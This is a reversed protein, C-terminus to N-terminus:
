NKGVAIKTLVNSFYINLAFNAHSASLQYKGPIIRLTHMLIFRVSNGLFHGQCKIHERFSYEPLTRCRLNRPPPSIMNQNTHNLLCEPKMCFIFLPCQLASNSKIKGRQQAAFVLAHPVSFHWRTRQDPGFQLSICSTSIGQTGPPFSQFLTSALNIRFYYVLVEKNGQVQM